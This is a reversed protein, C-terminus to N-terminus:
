PVFSFQFTLIGAFDLVLYVHREHCEKVEEACLFLNRMPFKEILPQTKLQTADRKHTHIWLLCCELKVLTYKLM